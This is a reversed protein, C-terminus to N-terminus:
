WRVQTSVSFSGGRSTGKLRAIERVYGQLERRLDAAREAFNVQVSDGSGARVADPADRLVAIEVPILQSMVTAYVLDDSGDVDNAYSMLLAALEGASSLGLQEPARYRLALAKRADM